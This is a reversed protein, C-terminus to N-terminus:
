DRGPNEGVKGAARDADGRRKGDKGEQRKLERDIVQRSGEVPDQEPRKKQDSNM